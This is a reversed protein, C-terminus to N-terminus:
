TLQATLSCGRAFLTHIPISTNMNIKIFNMVFLIVALLGAVGFIIVNWDM